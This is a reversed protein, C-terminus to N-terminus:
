SETEEVWSPQQGIENISKKLDPESLDPKITKEEFTSTCQYIVNLMRRINNNEFCLM